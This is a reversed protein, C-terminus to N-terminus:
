WVEDPEVHVADGDPERVLVGTVDLGLPDESWTVTLPTVVSPWIGPRREVVLDLIRERPNIGQPAAMVLSATYGPDPLYVTGKVHLSPPRPPMRNVWSYWDGTDIATPQPRPFPVVRDADSLSVSASGLVKGRHVVFAVVGNKGTDGGLSLNAIRHLLPKVLPLHLGRRVRTELLVPEVDGRLRVNEPAGRRARGSCYSTDPALTLSLLTYEGDAEELLILNPKFLEM